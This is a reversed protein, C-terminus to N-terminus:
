FTKPKGFLAEKYYQKTLKDYEEKTFGEVKELIKPVIKNIYSKFMKKEEDPM